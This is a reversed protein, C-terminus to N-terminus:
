RHSYVVLGSELKPYFYTSKQPMLEHANGMERLVEVQPGQLLFTAVAKKDKVSALAEEDSHTFRLHTEWSSEPLNWLGALVLHGVLTVDLRYWIDKKDTPMIKKAENIDKLTLWYGQKGDELVLGFSPSESYLAFKKNLTRVRKVIEDVPMPKVDFYGKLSEVARSAAFGPFPLVMRHTPMIVLGPDHFEVLAMLVFDSLFEQDESAGQEKRVRQANELATQYRHHGDAIYIKKQAISQSIKEIL